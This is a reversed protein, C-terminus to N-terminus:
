STRRRNPGHGWEYRYKRAFRTAVDARHPTTHEHPLECRLEEDFATLFTAGCRGSFLRRLWNLLSM